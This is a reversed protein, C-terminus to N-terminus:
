IRPSPRPPPEDDSGSLFRDALARFFDARTVVGTIRRDADVVPVVLVRHHLFVEAVQVDSFDEEVAIRENNLHREVLETACSARKELVDEMSRGVFGAGKLTGLYGPFLAQMFEREGFIGVLREGADVVPLAPLGSAMVDRVADRVADGCHLVPVGRVVTQTIKRAM